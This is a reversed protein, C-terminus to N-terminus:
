RIDVGWGGSCVAEEVEGDRAKGGRGGVRGEGGGDEGGACDIGVADWEVWACRRQGCVAEHVQSRDPVAELEVFEGRGDESGEEERDKSGTLFRAAQAETAQRNWVTAGRSRTNTDRRHVLPHQPTEM